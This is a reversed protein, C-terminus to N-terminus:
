PIREEEERDCLEENSTVNVTSMPISKVRYRVAADILSVKVRLNRVFCIISGIIISRRRAEGRRLYAFSNRSTMLQRSTVTPLASCSDSRWESQRGPHLVYSTSYPREDCEECALANNEVVLFCNHAYASHSRRLRFRRECERCRLGRDSCSLSPRLLDQDFSANTWSDSKM